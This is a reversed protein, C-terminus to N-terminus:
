LKGGRGDVFPIQEHSSGIARSQEAVNDSIYSGLDEVTSLGNVLGQALFYSFLRHGKDEYANAFQVGTGAYFATMKDPLQQKASVMLPSIKPSILENPSAKGSFCTDLFALVKGVRAQQIKGLLTAFAFADDEFATIVIDRPALYLQEGSRGPMGHGSYYFYLTDEPGLRSLTNRIKGSVFTGSAEEGQLIVRNAAPIGFRKALVRSVLELSNDAYPVDPAEKYDEVGVALLWARSNTAAAPMADVDQALQPDATNTIVGPIITPFNWSYETSESPVGKYTKGQFTIGAETLDISASSVTFSVQVEAKSSNQALAHAETPPMAVAIEESFQSYQSQLKLYFLEQQAVYKPVVDIKIEPAGYALWMAEEMYKAIFDLTKRTRQEPQEFMAENEYYPRLRQAIYDNVSSNKDSAARLSSLANHYSQLEQYEPLFDPYTSALEALDTLGAEGNKYKAVFVNWAREAAPFSLLGVYPPSFTSAFALAQGDPSFSFAATPSLGIGPVESLGRLLEGSQTDWLKIVIGDNDGAIAALTNGDPAYALTSLLHEGDSELTRLLEGSNIDWISIVMSDSHSFTYGTSALTNGDPAFAVSSYFSLESGLTRLLEGNHADWIKIVKGSNSSALINGDPSPALPNSLLGAMFLWFNYEGADYDGELTRLLEGSHADWIKVTGFVSISALIKGNAAFAVSILSETNGELTQLLEGSHVDWIKVTKDLSGSALMDAEPSFSVSSVIDTHGELTHLLDGSRADWVMVTGNYDGSALTNGNPAFAVTRIIEGYDDKISNNLNRVDILPIMVDEEIDWHSIINYYSGFAIIDGRDTTVLHTKGNSTKQTGLLVGKNADWIKVTNDRSISALGKGEAIYTVSQITDIHGELTKLLEGSHVDWIKVTKDLSGSALTDGGPAFAVSNVSSTHRGLTMLLEGSGIDWLKVTNWSGVALTTGNPAFDVSNAQWNPAELTQLLEGSNIDWINITDDDSASALIQGNPTFTLSNIRSTHGILVQLREGSSTDWLEIIPVNYSGGSALTKGDPTFTLSEIKEIHGDLTQSLAGTRIDWLKIAGGTIGSALTNSDPQYAM